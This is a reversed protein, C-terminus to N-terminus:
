PGARSSGSDNPKGEIPRVNPVDPDSAMALRARYLGHLTVNRALAVVDVLVYSFLFAWVLFIAAAVPYTMHPYAARYGIAVFITTVQLGIAIMYPRLFAAVGGDTKNLLRIYEDSFLAILLSFAAFVLGLLLGTLALGDGVVGALEKKSSWAVLLSGGGVGLVLALTGEPWILQSVKSQGIAALFGVSSRTSAM